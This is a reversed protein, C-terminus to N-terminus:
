QRDINEVLKWYKGIGIFGSMFKGRFWGGDEEEEAKGNQDRCQSIIIPNYFFNETVM